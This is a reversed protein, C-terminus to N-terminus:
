LIKKNVLLCSYITVECQESKIGTIKYGGPIKSIKLFCPRIQTERPEVQFDPYKHFNIDM